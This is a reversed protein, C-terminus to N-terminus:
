DTNKPRSGVVEVEAAFAPFSKLIAEQVAVGSAETPGVIWSSCTGCSYTGSAINTGFNDRLIKTTEPRQNAVGDCNNSTNNIHIQRLAGRTNM